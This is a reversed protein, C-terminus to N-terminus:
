PAPNPETVVVPETTQITASDTTSTPETTPAPEAVPEETPTPTPTPTPEPEVVVPVEQAPEVVKPEETDTAGQVEGEVVVPEPEKALEAAEEIKVLAAQFREELVLQRAEEIAVKALATRVGRDPTLNEIEADAVSAETSAIRDEINVLVVSRPAAANGGVHQDVLVALALITLRESQRLAKNIGLKNDGDALRVARRLTTQQGVTRREITKALEAAEVGDGTSAMELNLALQKSSDIFASTAVAIKAPEAAGEVMRALDDARRDAIDSLLRAKYGATPAVALQAKEVLGRVAYMADGPLAGAYSHASVAGGGVLTLVAVAAFSMARGFSQVGQVPVFIRGAEIMRRSFTMAPETVVESLVTKMVREQVRSLAVTELEFRDDKAIERFLQTLRKPM